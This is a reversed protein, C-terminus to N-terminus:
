FLEQNLKGMMTIASISTATLSLAVPLASFSQGGLAYNTEDKILQYGLEYAGFEADLRELDLVQMKSVLGSHITM